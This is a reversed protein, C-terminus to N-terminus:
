LLENVTTFIKNENVSPLPEQIQNENELIFIDPKGGAEVM